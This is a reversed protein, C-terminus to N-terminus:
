DKTFETGIVDLIVLNNKMDIVEVTVGGINNGNCLLYFELNENPEIDPTTRMSISIPMTVRAATTSSARGYAIPLQYNGKNSYHQYYRMCETLEANYGKPQYDPLTDLTYEGEYLAIWKVTFSGIGNRIRTGVSFCAYSGLDPIVGSVVVPGTTGAPIIKNIPTAVSQSGSDKGMWIALQLEAETNNESIYMCLTVMKGIYISPNDLATILSHSKTETGSIKLGNDFLTHTTVSHISRWRDISFEGGGYIINGRQNVPNTFDSNDLLSRPAAKKVAANM